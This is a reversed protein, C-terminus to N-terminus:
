NNDLFKDINALSKEIMMKYEEVDKKPFTIKCFTDYRLLRRFLKEKDESYNAIVIKDKSFDLIREEDKLLYSKALKGYLEFITEKTQFIKFENKNEIIKVINDMLIRKLNNEEDFYELFLKNKEWIYDNPLISLEEAKKTTVIIRKKSESYKKLTTIKESYHKNFSTLRYNEYKEKVYCADKNNTTCLIKNITNQFKIFKKNPLMIFALLLLYSFLSLEYKAFEIMNKHTLLSYFDEEQALNFGAKKILNLHKYLTSNKISLNSLLEEKSIKKKLLLKIIKLSNKDTLKAEM